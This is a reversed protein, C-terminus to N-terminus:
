RGRVFKERCPANRRSPWFVDPNANLESNHNVGCVILILMTDKPITYGAISVSETTYHPAGLQGPPRFRLVEKIVARVYPLDHEDDHTPLRDHRVVRDLEVELHVALLGLAWWLTTSTQTESNLAPLNFCILNLQQLAM